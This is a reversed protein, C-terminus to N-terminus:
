DTAADLPGCPFPGAYCPDCAVAACTSPPFQGSRETSSVISPDSPCSYGSLDSHAVRGVLKGSADYVSPVEVGAGTFDVIVTLGCAPYDRRVRASCDAAAPLPADCGAFSQACYCSWFLDLTGQPDISCGCATPGGPLVAVPETARVDRRVAADAVPHAAPSSCGLGVLSLSAWFLGRV